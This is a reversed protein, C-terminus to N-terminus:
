KNKQMGTISLLNMRPSEHGDEGLETHIKSERDLLDQVLGVCERERPM